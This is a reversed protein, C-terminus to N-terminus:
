PFYYYFLYLLLSLCVYTRHFFKGCSKDLMFIIETTSRAKVFWRSLALSFFVCIFDPRVSLSSFSKRWRECLISATANSHVWIVVCLLLLSRVCVCLEKSEKLPLACLFTCFPFVRERERERKSARKVLYFNIVASLILALSSSHRSQRYRNPPLLFYEHSLFSNTANNALSERDCSSVDSHARERENVDKKISVNKESVFFSHNLSKEKTTTPLPALSVSPFLQPSLLSSASRSQM